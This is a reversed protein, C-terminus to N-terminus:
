ALQYPVQVPGDYQDVAGSAPDFRNQVFTGSRQSRVIFGITRKDTNCEQHIEWPPVFDIYGPVVEHTGKERITAKQPVQPGEDTREFRTVNEGGELVGYLTWSKGHDHISTKVGPAKILANLVFGYDPDEYFLLNGPKGEVALSDPWTKAHRKLDEDALLDRLYDCAQTWIESEATGAQFLARVSSVFADAAPLM